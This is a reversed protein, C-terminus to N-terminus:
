KAKRGIYLGRGDLGEEDHFVELGAERFAQLYEERTFIGLADTEDFYEIGDPTAILYHFALHSIKGEVRNLNMRAIKLDPLDVFTAHPKHDELIGPGFWPEVMLVGGELLHGAMSKIAQFLRPLTEVYGIASFLCVIVDFCRQLDFDVMDGHHFRIGPFKGRAIELMEPSNDLGEVQFEKRLYTLHNGTGCAVDM